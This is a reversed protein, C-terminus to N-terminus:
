IELRRSRKRARGSSNQGDIGTPEAEDASSSEEYVEEGGRTASRQVTGASAGASTGASVSGDGNQAAGSVGGAQSGSRQRGKSGGRKGGQSGSAAAANTADAHATSRSQEAAAQLQQVLEQQRDSYDVVQTVFSFVQSGDAQLTASARRTTAPKAAPPKAPKPIAYSVQQVRKDADAEEVLQLTVQLQVDQLSEPCTRSLRWPLQGSFDRSKLVAAAPGLFSVSASAAMPLPCAPGHISSICFSFAWSSSTSSSNNNPQSVDEASASQVVAPSSPTDAAPEAAAAGSAPGGTVEAQGAAADQETQQQQSPQQLLEEEQQQQEESGQKISGNKSGNVATYMHSLLLQDTRTFRPIPLQLQQMIVAMIEDVKAHIVVEARKDKPTAQLNIIALKGGAKVTRLPLNAAPIIQLSTGLCLAVDASSAHRQTTKFEDDPLADEWDLIHDILQGRCDPDTCRRGTPKFGVTDM